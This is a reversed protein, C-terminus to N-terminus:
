LYRPCYGLSNLMLQCIALLIRCECHGAFRRIQKREHDNSTLLCTAAEKHDGFSSLVFPASLLFADGSRNSCERDFVLRQVAVLTAPSGTLWEPLTVQLGFISPNIYRKYDDKGCPRTGQEDTARSVYGSAAPVESM